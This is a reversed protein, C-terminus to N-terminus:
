LGWINKAYEDVARDASFIGANAINILSMRQWRMTDSYLASARAQAEQYSGFDALVMYPDINKLSSVVNDFKNGNFGAAIRDVVSKIVPNSSYLRGPHYGERKLREVEDVTMGFNIINDQGVVQGIEVNAGDRTGLTVAGSLMFKMNGTGSAETGALSIQESIESAPMLIETLSVNYNELFVVNLKEKIRPNKKIEEGISWILKIIEKAMYYSPAAKAGFIYTKPTVDADPNRVLRDYESVINLVNLHQRKYEHLRKVQVDFITDPDIEIGRRQKLYKSLNKKNKSKVEALRTLVSEDQAFSELKKLNMANDLYSDGITDNLLSCLGPNSQYLWRRYAIGNTVNTFKQPSVGYEDSFIDRKIIESHIASVGNVHHSACVCLKAMHVTNDRIISMGTVKKHDHYREWLSACYRNNIEVIISFIRPVVSKLLDCSWKELAEAMVTHNTYAFTKTVIDWAKDWIYGCDDLLIRMLEPIALTPHTDNIQVAVKDAFNDLTGYTAMHHNVIDGVSAACMFYQQRLRLIKGQQNSDGPYLVKSISQALISQGVAKAFQGNNFENMDFSIAPAVAKWLRLKSVARSNYGSVFMDYPVALVTTYNNLTVHHYQSDWYEKIEGDFHVEIQAEPREVLWVSGGPLWNDPEEVQWGNELKQCFIGYEYLISYGTAPYGDTALGDLYCAALRGLGGNGLGADPEQEYISSLSVGMDKLAGSAAEVLGLNYLSTKLSRGMLFEMSIYYVQKRGESHVKTTYEHRKKVLERVVISSLADYIQKESASEPSVMYNIDLVKKLEEKLSEKTYAAENGKSLSIVGM